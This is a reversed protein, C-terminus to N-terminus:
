RIGLLIAGVVTGSLATLMAAMTWQWMLASISSRHEGMLRSDSAILIMFILLPAMLTRSIVQTVIAMFNLPLELARLRVVDVLKLTVSPHAKATGRLITWKGQCPFKM